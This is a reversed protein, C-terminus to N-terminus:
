NGIQPVCQTQLKNIMWAIPHSVLKWWFTSLSLSLTCIAIKILSEAEWPPFFFFFLKERSSNPIWIRQWKWRCMLVETISFVRYKQPDTQQCYMNWVDWYHSHRCCCHNCQLCLIFHLINMTGMNDKSCFNNKWREYCGHTLLKIKIFCLRKM